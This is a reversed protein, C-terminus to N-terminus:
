LAKKTGDKGVVEIAGGNRRYGAAGGCAVFADMTGFTWDLWAAGFCGKNVAHHHDHEAAGDAHTLWLADVWTDAFSYGSHTEYTQQLRLFLWVWLAIGPRGFFFVGGISPIVNSLVNELPHSFEAAPAISAVFAHHQKHVHRYVPRAHLARHSWYFVVDNFFHALVFWCACELVGFELPEFVPPMGFKVAMPFMAYAFAPTTVLHGLLAERWLRRMTDDLSRQHSPRPVKYRRLWGKADCLVFPLATLVYAVTHSASTAAAWFVRESAGRAAAAAALSQTLPYLALVLPVGLLVDRGYERIEGKLIHAFPPYRLREANVV